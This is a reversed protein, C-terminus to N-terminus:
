TRPPINRPRRTPELMRTTDQKKETGGKEWGKYRTATASSADAKKARSPTMAPIQASFNSSRARKGVKMM